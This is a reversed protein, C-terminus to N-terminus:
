EDQSKFFLILFIKEFQTKSPVTACVKLGLMQSACVSLHRHTQFWGPRISLELGALAVFYSRTEFCVFSCVFLCVFSRSLHSQPEVRMVWM